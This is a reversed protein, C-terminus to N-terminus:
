DAPTRIEAEPEDSPAVAELLASDGATVPEPIRPLPVATGAPPSMRPVDSATVREIVLLVCCALLATGITKTGEESPGILNKAFQDLDEWPVIDFVESLALFVVAGALALLPSVLERVAPVLVVGISVAAALYVAWIYIDRDVDGLKPLALEDLVITIREHIQMLEDFALYIIFVGAALWTSTARPLRRDLRATGLLGIGATALLFSSIVSMVGSIKGGEYDEFLFTSDGKIVLGLVAAVLVVVLGVFGVILVFRGSQDYSHRLDARWANVRDDGNTRM